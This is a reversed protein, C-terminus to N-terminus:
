RVTDGGGGGASADAGVAVPRMRFKEIMLWTSWPLDVSDSRMRSSVPATSGRSM